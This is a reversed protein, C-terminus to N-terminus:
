DHKTLSDVYATHYKECPIHFIVARHPQSTPVSTKKLTRTSLQIMCYIKMVNRQLIQLPLIITNM